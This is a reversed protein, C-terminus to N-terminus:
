EPDADDDDDSFNEFCWFMMALNKFAHDACNRVVQGLEEKGGEEEWTNLASALMTSACVMVEGTRVDLVFRESYDSLAVQIFGFAAIKPPKNEFQGLIGPRGEVRIEDNGEPDADPLIFGAETVFGCFYEAVTPHVDPLGLPLLRRAGPLKLCDIDSLCLEM